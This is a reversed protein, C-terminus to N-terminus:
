GSATKLKSPDFQVEEQHPQRHQAVDQQVEASGQSCFSGSVKLRRKLTKQTEQGKEDM